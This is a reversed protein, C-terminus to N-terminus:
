AIPQELSSSLSGKMDGDSSMSQNLIQRKAYGIEPLNIQMQVKNPSPIGTQSKAQTYLKPETKMQKQDLISLKSINFGSQNLTNPPRVNLIGTVIDNSNRGRDKNM